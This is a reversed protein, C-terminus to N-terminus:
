THVLRGDPLLYVSHPTESIPAWYIAPGAGTAPLATWTITAVDPASGVVPKGGATCLLVTSGISDIVTAYLLDPGVAPTASPISTWAIETSTLTPLAM